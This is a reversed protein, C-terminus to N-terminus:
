LMTCCMYVVIYLIHQLLQIVRLQKILQSKVSSSEGLVSGTLTRTVIPRILDSIEKVSLNCGTTEQFIVCYFMELVLSFRVILMRVM